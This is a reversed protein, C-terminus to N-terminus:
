GMHAPIREMRYTVTRDLDGVVRHRPIFINGYVFEMVLTQDLINQDPYLHTLVDGVTNVVAPLNEVITNDILGFINRIRLPRPPDPPIDLGVYPNLPDAVAREPQQQQPEQPLAGETWGQRDEEDEKSNTSATSPTTTKGLGSPSM